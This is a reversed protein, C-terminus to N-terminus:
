RDSLRWDPRCASHRNCHIIIIVNAASPITIETCADYLGINAKEREDRVGLAAFYDDRWNAM